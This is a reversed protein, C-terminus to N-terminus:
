SAKGVLSQKLPSGIQLKLATWMSGMNHSYVPVEWRSSDRDSSIQSVLTEKLDRPSRTHLFREERSEENDDEEQPPIAETPDDSSSPLPSLREPMFPESDENSFLQFEEEEM